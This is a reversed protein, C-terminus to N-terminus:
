DFTFTGTPLPPPPKTDKFMNEFEEQKIVMLGGGPQQVAYDGREGTAEVELRGNVIIALNFPEDMQIAQIDEIRRYVNSGISKYMDNFRGIECGYIDFGEDPSPGIMVMHPGEMKQDGWDKYYTAGDQSLFARITLKKYYTEAGEPLETILRISM